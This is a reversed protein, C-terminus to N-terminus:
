KISEIKIKDDLLDKLTTGSIIKIGYDKAKKNKSTGSSPDNTVLFSLDKSVNNKVEAGKSRMLEQIEERGAWLEGTICFSVGSLPGQGATGNIKIHKLLNTIVSLKEQISEKIEDSTTKIGPVQALEDVTAAIVAEITGFHKAIRKANIEGVHTVNLGYLFTALDMNVLDKIQQYIKDGNKESKCADHFNERDASMLKAPNDIGLDILASLVAPGIGKFKTARIWASLSGITKGQCDLMPCFLYAGEKELKGKCTPCTTPENTAGNGPTLGASIGPIVDNFRTLTIKSGVSVNLAKIYDKNNLTCRSITVGGIDTPEVMAVPSIRGNRGVQWQIDSITTEKSQAEFKIAVQGRPRGNLNGLEAQKAIDNIKVVMGDVEYGLTPRQNVRIEFQKWVDEPNVYPGRIFVYSLGSKRIFNEKDIETSFKLVDSLVDFYVVKIYQVLESSKERAVGNAANRPNKYGLPNFVLDFIKQELIMEGRLVGTFGEIREQVNAMQLANVLIEEGESGDGRTAASILQGDKYTLVLTSGDLKDTIVFNTKNEAWKLFAEKTKVKDQSGMVYKHKIKPWAGIKIPAGIEKLFKNDPDWSRLMDCTDDFEKDSMIPADNYYADSAKRLLIELREARYKPDDLKMVLEKDEEKQKESRTDKDLWMQYKDSWVMNPIPPNNKDRRNM